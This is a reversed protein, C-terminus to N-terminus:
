MSVTVGIHRKQWRLGASRTREHMQRTLAQEPQWHWGPQSNCVNQLIMQSIMVKLSIIGLSSVDVTADQSFSLASTAIPSPMNGASHLVHLIDSNAIPLHLSSPQGPPRVYAASHLVVPATLFLVYARPGVRRAAIISPM